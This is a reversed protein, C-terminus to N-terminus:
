IIEVVYREKGDFEQYQSTALDCIRFGHELVELAAQCDENSGVSLDTVQYTGVRYYTGQKGAPFLILGAAALPFATDRPARQDRAYVELLVADELGAIQVSMVFFVEDVKKGGIELKVRDGSFEPQVISVKCMRAQIRLTAERVSGFPNSVPTVNVDLVHAKAWQPRMDFHDLNVLSGLGNGEAVPFSAWSWSPKVRDQMPGSDRGAGSVWLLNWPFHAQWLGALYKEDSSLAEKVVEVIGSIAILRDDDVTLEMSTYLRLIRYWLDYVQDSSSRGKRLNQLNAKDIYDRHLKERPVGSPFQESALSERCEWFIQTATFHLTRPALLREQLVWGRRNLDTCELTGYWSNKPTCIHEPKRGRPFIGRCGNVVIPHRERFLGGEPDTSATAALNVQSNGYVLEMRPAERQWDTASGQIICLADIWLYRLGLTRTASVADRFTAPLEDLPIGARFSPESDGSLTM